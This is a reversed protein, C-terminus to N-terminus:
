ENIKKLVPFGNNEGTRIEWNDTGLLNVFENSKMFAEEKEESELITPASGKLAYNNEVTFSDGGPNRGVIAGVDTGHEAIVKGINYNNRLIGSANTGSIWGLIGGIGSGSGNYIVNGINYCNTVQWSVDKFTSGM